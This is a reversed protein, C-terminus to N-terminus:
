RINQIKISACNRWREVAAVMLIWLLRPVSQVSRAAVDDDTSGSVSKSECVEIELCLFRGILEEFAM